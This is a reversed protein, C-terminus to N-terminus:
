LWSNRKTLIIIVYHGGALLQLVLGDIDEVLLNKQESISKFVMNSLHPFPNFISCIVKNKKIEVPATSISVWCLGIKVPNQFRSLHLDVAFRNLVM